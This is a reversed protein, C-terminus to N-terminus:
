DPKRCDGLRGFPSVAGPPSTTENNVDAALVPLTFTRESVGETGALTTITVRLRVRTWNAFERPYIVRLNAFGTEDTRGGVSSLSAVAVNAPDLAGDGDLDEGPDLRLNENLDESQCGFPPADASEGRPVWLTGSWYYSGKFFRVGVLSAQIAAGIVPNGSSDTVAATWPMVEAAYM